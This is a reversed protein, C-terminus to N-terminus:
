DAERRVSASSPRPAPDLGAAVGVLALVVGLLAIAAAPERHVTMEVSQEPEVDLLAFSRDLGAVQHIGPMARLVFVRHTQGARTVTLLAAPNRPENSRSFPQRKEDLEFDPFYEELAIALDGARGPQGPGVDTTLTEKGDSVGIRLRTAGGTPVAHPRAFRFGGFVVARDATLEVPGKQGPLALAVGGGPLLREVGIVFGLPRLGLARGGPDREDFHPRSQGEVLTLTGEQGRVRDWGAAGLVLLGGAAVLWPSLRKGPLAEMARALLAVAALLCAAALALTREPLWAESRLAPHLVLAALFLVAALPGPRALPKM